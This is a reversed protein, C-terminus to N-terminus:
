LTYVVVGFLPWQGLCVPSAEFLVLRQRLWLRSVWICCTVAGFVHQQELHMDVAGFVCGITGFVCAVRGFWLRSGSVCLKSDRLASECQVSLTVYRMFM